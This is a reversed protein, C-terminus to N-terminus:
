RNRESNPEPADKWSGVPIIHAHNFQWQMQSYTEVLITWQLTAPYWLSAGLAFRISHEREVAAFLFGDVYLQQLPMGHWNFPRAWVGRQFLRMKSALRKPSTFAFNPGTKGGLDEWFEAPAIVDNLWEIAYFSPVVPCSVDSLRHWKSDLHICALKLNDM